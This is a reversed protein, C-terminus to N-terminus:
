FFGIGRMFIEFWLCFIQDFFFFFFFFSQCLVTHHQKDTSVLEKYYQTEVFEDGVM